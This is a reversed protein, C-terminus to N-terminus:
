VNMEVCGYAERMTGVLHSLVQKVLVKRKVSVDLLGSEVVM